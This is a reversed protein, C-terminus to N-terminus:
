FPNREIFESEAKKLRETRAVDFSMDVLEVVNDVPVIQEDDHCALDNQLNLLTDMSDALIMQVEKIYDVTDVEDNM